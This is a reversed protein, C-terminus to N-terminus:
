AAPPSGCCCGVGKEVGAYDVWVIDADRSGANSFLVSQEEQSEAFSVLNPTPVPCGSRVVILGCAILLAVLANAM